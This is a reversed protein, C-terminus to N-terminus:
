NLGVSERIEKELTEAAALGKEDLPGDASVHSFLGEPGRRIQAVIQTDGAMRTKYAVMTAELRAKVRAMFTRPNESETVVVLPKAGPDTWMVLLKRSDAEWRANQVEFWLAGGIPGEADFLFLAHTGAVAWTGDSLKECPASRDSHPLHHLLEPPLNSM